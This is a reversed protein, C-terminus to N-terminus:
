QSEDSTSARSQYSTEYAGPREHKPVYCGPADYQSVASMTTAPRKGRHRDGAPADYPCGASMPPAPM